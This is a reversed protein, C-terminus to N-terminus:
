LKEKKNSGLIKKGWGLFIRAVRRITRKHTCSQNKSLNRNMSTYQTHISTSLQNKRLNGNMSTYVIVLQGLTDISYYRSSDINLIKTNMYFTHRLFITIMFMLNICSIWGGKIFDMSEGCAGCSLKCVGRM